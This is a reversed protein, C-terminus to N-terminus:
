PVPILEVIDYIVLFSIMDMEPMRDTAGAAQKSRVNKELVPYFSHLVPVPITHPPGGVRGV